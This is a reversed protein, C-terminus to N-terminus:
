RAQELAATKRGPLSSEPTFRAISVIDFRGSALPTLEEDGAYVEVQYPGEDWGDGPELWVYNQDRAPDVSYRDLHLPEPAGIRHWKVYVADDMLPDTPFVAYIARVRDHFASSELVTRGEPDVSRGFTVPAGGSDEPLAPGLAIETLRHVHKRIDRITQFDEAELETLQSVADIIERDNMQELLEGVFDLTREPDSARNPEKVSPRAALLSRGIQLRSTDSDSLDGAVRALTPDRPLPPGDITRQTDIKQPVSLWLCGLLAVASCLTLPGRM